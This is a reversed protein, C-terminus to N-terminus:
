LWPCQVELYKLPYLLPYLPPPVFDGGFPNSFQIDGFHNSFQIDGVAYTRSAFELHVRGSQTELNIRLELSRDFAEGREINQETRRPLEQSFSREEFLLKEATSNEWYWPVCSVLEVTSMDSCRTVRVRAKMNQLREGDFPRSGLRKVLEPDVKGVPVPLLGNREVKIEQSWLQSTRLGRGLTTFIVEEEGDGKYFEVTFIYDTLKTRPQYLPLDPKQNVRTSQRFSRLLGKWSFNTPGDEKADMLVVAIDRVSSDALAVDRWLCPKKDADDAMKFIANGDLVVIRWSKCTREMAALSGADGVQGFRSVLEPPLGSWGSSSDAPANSPGEAETGPGRGESGVLGVAGAAAEEMGVVGPLNGIAAGKGGGMAGDVDEDDGEAKEEKEEAVAAYKAAAAAAAAASTTGDNAGAGADNRRGPPDPRGARRTSNDAGAAAAAAAEARAAEAAAAEARTVAAAEAEAAKAARAERLRDQLEAKRGRRGGAPVDLDKLEKKLEVVKMDDTNKEM